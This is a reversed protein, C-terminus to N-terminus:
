KATPRLGGEGGVRRWATYVSNELVSNVFVNNKIKFLKERAYLALKM